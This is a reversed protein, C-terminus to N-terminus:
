KEIKLWKKELCFDWGVDLALAGLLAFSESPVLPTYLKKITNFKDLEWTLTTFGDAEDGHKAKDWHVRVEDSTYPVQARALASVSGTACDAVISHFIWQIEKSKIGVEEYLGREATIVPDWEAVGEPGVVLDGVASSEAMVGWRGPYWALNASRKFLIAKMDSCIIVVAVGIGYPQLVNLGARCRDIKEIPTLKEWLNKAVVWSAYDTLIGNLLCHTVTGFKRQTVFRPAIRLENLKGPTQAISRRHEEALATFLPETNKEQTTIQLKFKSFGNASWALPVVTESNFSSLPTKTLNLSM